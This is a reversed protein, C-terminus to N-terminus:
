DKGVEWRAFDAVALEELGWKEQWQDLVRRVPISANEGGLMMFPQEYLITEPEDEPHRKKDVGLTMFGATQRALARELKELDGIFSDDKFLSPQPSRLSILNLAGVRGQHLYSAARYTTNSNTPSTLLMARRLSINEGIRAILDTILSGVTGSKHSLHLLDEIPLLTFPSFTDQDLARSRAVLDSITDALRAFEETRSVFDSECNLEIIGAQVRGTGSGVRSGMGGELVSISILGESTERDKIKEAKAAGSKRMDEELWQRAANFDGNSEDLAQRAKIIPANSLKRLEAVLQVRSKTPASSYLRRLTVRSGSHFPQTFKLM